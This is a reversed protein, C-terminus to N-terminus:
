VIHPISIAMECGFYILGISYFVLGIFVLLEFGLYTYNKKKNSLLLIVAALILITGIIITWMNYQGIVPSSQLIYYNSITFIAMLLLIGVNLKRIDEEKKILNLSAVFIPFIVTAITIVVSGYNLYVDVLANGCIDLRFAVSSLLYIYSFFLFYFCIYRIKNYVFAFKNDRLKHLYLFSIVINTIVSIFFLCVAVVGQTGIGGQFYTYNENQLVYLLSVVFFAISVGFCILHSFSSLVKEREEYEPIFSKNKIKDLDNKYFNFDSPNFQNAM